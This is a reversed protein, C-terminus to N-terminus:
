SSSTCGDLPYNGKYAMWRRASHTAVFSWDHAGPMRACGGCNDDRADCRVRLKCWQMHQRSGRRYGRWCKSSPNPEKALRGLGAKDRLHHNDAARTQSTSSLSWDKPTGDQNFTRILIKGDWAPNDRDM